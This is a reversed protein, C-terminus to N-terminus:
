RSSPKVNNAGDPYVFFLFHVVTLSGYNDVSIITNDTMESM